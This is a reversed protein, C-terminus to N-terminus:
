HMYELVPLVGPFVLLSRGEAVTFFFELFMSFLILVHIYFIVVHNFDFISLSLTLFDLNM